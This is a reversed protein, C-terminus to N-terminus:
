VFSARFQEIWGIIVAFGSAYNKANPPNMQSEFTQVYFKSLDELYSIFYSFYFAVYKDFYAVKDNYLIYPNSILGRFSTDFVQFLIGDAADGFVITAGGKHVLHDRVNRVETFWKEQALTLSAVEPQIRDKNNALWNLLKRFSGTDTVQGPKNSFLRIIETIHDMASRLEVHFSQIDVAAYDRWRDEFDHESMSRKKMWALRDILTAMNWVDQSVLKFLRAFKVGGITSQPKAFTLLIEIDQSAGKLHIGQHDSHFLSLTFDFTARDTRM